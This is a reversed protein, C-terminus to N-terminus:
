KGTSITPKVQAYGAVGAAGMLGTSAASLAGVAGGQMYAACVGCVLGALALLWAFLNIGQVQMLAGAM